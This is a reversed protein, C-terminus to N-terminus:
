VTPMNSMLAHAISFQWYAALKMWFIACVLLFVAPVTGFYCMAQLGSINIFDAFVFVNVDATLM